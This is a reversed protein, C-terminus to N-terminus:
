KLRTATVELQFERNSYPDDVSGLVLPKGVVLLTTGNIQIHSIIPPTFVSHPARPSVDVDEHKTWTIDSRVELQVEENVERLNAWISTGFDLYQFQPPAPSDGASTPVRTGFKVEDSSGATLNLAYHRSNIKKGEELENLFFDLRYPQISKPRQDPKTEQAAPKASDSQSSSGTNQQAQAVTSVCWLVLTVVFSVTIMKRM